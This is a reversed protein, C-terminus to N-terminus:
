SCIRQDFPELGAFAPFDSTSQITRGKPKPAALRYFAKKPLLALPITGGSTWRTLTSIVSGNVSTASSSIVREVSKPPMSAGGGGTVPALVLFCTQGYQPATVETMSFGVPGHGRQLMSSVGAVRAAVLARM